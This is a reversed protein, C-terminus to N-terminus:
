RPEAAQEDRSFLYVVHPYPLWDAIPYTEMDFRADVAERFRRANWYWMDFSRTMLVDLAWTFFLKAAPKRAIDKIILRGDPKLRPIVTSLLHHKGSDPLHHMLDMMIVVDYQDQLDLNGCADGAEFSVNQLNLRKAAQRAMAIRGESLDIGHYQIRPNRAGFYCGFLGFGCGIELVRVKGRMCLNLIHLMNINIIIFRIFCYARVMRSDYARIITRLLQKQERAEM